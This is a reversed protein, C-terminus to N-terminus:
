RDPAAGADGLVAALAEADHESLADLFADGDTVPHNLALVRVAEQAKQFSHAIRQRAELPIDLEAAMALTLHWNARTLAHLWAMEDDKM